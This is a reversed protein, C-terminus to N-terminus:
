RRFGHLKLHAMETMLTLNNIRFDKKDWNIHHVVFGAPIKMGLRKEVMTRHALRGSDRWRPYGKADLYLKEMAVYEVM